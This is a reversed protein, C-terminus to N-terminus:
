YRPRSFPYTIAKYLTARPTRVLKLLRYFTSKCAFLAANPRGVIKARIRESERKALERFKGSGTMSQSHIRFAGLARPLYAFRRGALAMDVLLEADWNYRNEINFGSTSDFAVKKFFTAQQIVMCGGYAFAQLNWPCSFLRRIRRGNENIELGDGVVVDISKHTSFFQVARAFAEPLFEDDANIYCFIRGSCKKFGKNLGDAPGFDSESIWRFREDQVSRLFEITGDTSGADVVLYEFDGFSQSLVSEVCSEIFQRQNYSITVISLTTTMM